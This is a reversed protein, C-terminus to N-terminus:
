RLGVTNAWVGGTACEMTTSYCKFDVINCLSLFKSLEQFIRHSSNEILAVGDDDVEQQLDGVVVPEDDVM